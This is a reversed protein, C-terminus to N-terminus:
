RQRRRLALGPLALLALTTPEPVNTLPYTGTPGGDLGFNDKLLGFDEPGIEGDDNADGLTWSEHNGFPLNDLGFGDKLIGFDEPGVEGDLNFDGSLYNPWSTAGQVIQIAGVYTRGTATSFSLTQTAGSLGTFVMWEGFPNADTTRVDDIISNQASQNQQGMTLSAGGVSVTISNGQTMTRVYMDYTGSLGAFDVQMTGGNWWLNGYGARRWANDILGGSVHTDGAGPPIATLPDNLGYGKGMQFYDIEDTPNWVNPNSAGSVQPTMTVGGFTAPALTTVNAYNASGAAGVYKGAFPDDVGLVMEALNRSAGDVARVASSRTGSFNFGVSGARASAGTLLVAAMVVGMTTRTKM